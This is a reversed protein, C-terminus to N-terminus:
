PAATEIGHGPFREDFTWIRAPPVVQATAWLLADPVSVRRSPRTLELAEIAVDTDVEHAEINERELLRILAGAVQEPPRRYFSRLVHAVEALILISIRLPRESDILAAARLSLQPDDNTLYRCIVDSDLFEVRQLLGPPEAV